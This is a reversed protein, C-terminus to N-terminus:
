LLEDDTFAYLVQRVDTASAVDYRVLLPKDVAEM